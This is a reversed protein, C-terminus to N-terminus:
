PTDFLVRFGLDPRRLSRDATWERTLANSGPKQYSGGAIIWLRNGLPNTPNPALTATWECVSGAMGILGLRTRDGTQSNVPAWPGPSLTAPAQHEFSLAAFWEEQTPLRAKKWNAYASADWWDVGSVPSDLTAVQNDWLRKAKAAALLAPWDTPEHSKKEAPQDAHDYTSYRNNKELLTITDLFEAYQGITVEHASIRFAPLSSELGDPTPHTGADVIVPGPLPIQTNGNPIPPRLKLAITAIGALMVATILAIMGVPMKRSALNATKTATLTSLSDALQHEIQMCVDRTQAWDIPSEIGEGRMWSLLTLLRTAGPQGHAVLPMLAQGLHLIDRLTHDPTRPGAIALNKLRIVGHQDQYIDDLSIPSTAQGLAEHQLHAEAVRRLIHALRAPILTLKEQIRGGLTIGHLLEHAYFCFGPESVAEYVSSVLPHDVSAKARIDALFSDALHSQGPKLEDVLVVRSVSIQEALWTYCFPTESLLQKLRYEGLQRVESEPNM